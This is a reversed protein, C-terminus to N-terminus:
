SGGPGPAPSEWVPGRSGFSPPAPLSTGPISRGGGRPRRTGAGTRPAACGGGESKPWNPTVPQFLSFSPLLSHAGPLAWHGARQRAPERPPAAQLPGQPGPLGRTAPAAGPSPRHCLASATCSLGPGGAGRGVAGTRPFDQSSGLLLDASCAQRGGPLATATCLAPPLPRWILGQCPRAGGSPPLSLPSCFTPDAPM